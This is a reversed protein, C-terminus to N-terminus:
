MHIIYMITILDIQLYGRNTHVNQQNRVEGDANLDNITWSKIVQDNGVFAM